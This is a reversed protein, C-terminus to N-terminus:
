LIQLMRHKFHHIHSGLCYKLVSNPVKMGLCNLVCCFDTVNENVPVFKRIMIFYFEKHPLFRSSSNWKGTLDSHFHIMKACNGAM